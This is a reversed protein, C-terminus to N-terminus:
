ITCYRFLAAERGCSSPCTESLAWALRVEFVSRLMISIRPDVFANPAGRTLDRGQAEFGALYDGASRAEWLHFMNLSWWKDKLDKLSASYM